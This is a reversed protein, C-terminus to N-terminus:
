NIGNGSVRHFKTNKISINKILKVVSEYSVFTLIKSSIKYFKPYTFSDYDRTQQFIDRPSTAM